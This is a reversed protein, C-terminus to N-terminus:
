HKTLNPKSGLRLRILPDSHTQACLIQIAVSNLGNGAFIATAEDFQKHVTPKHHRVDDNDVGPLDDHILSSVHICETAAAVPLSQEINVGFINAASVVLFPRLMKGGSFVGYRM